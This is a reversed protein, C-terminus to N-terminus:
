SKIPYCVETIFNEPNSENEPSIYYVNFAKGLIKYGNEKTWSYIYRNIDSMRSYRGQFAVVAAQTEPLVSFRLGDINEGIQNVIRFVETDFLRRKFDMSHTIAMSFQEDAYDINNEKCIKHLREWLLGEESFDHIIDRLSVVKYAPFRKISVSLSLEGHFELEKLAQQLQAIQKEIISLNEQKQKIKDELYYKVREDITDDNLIKLIEELGFGLSKLVQVRNARIIQKKSYYRYGSLNDVKEPRILGIKDYHRLMNISIGTLASFEGIKLM